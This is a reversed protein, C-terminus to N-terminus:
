GNTNIDTRDGNHDAIDFGMAKAKNEAARELLFVLRAGNHSGISVLVITLPMNYHALQCLLFTIFGALSCTLMEGFWETLNFPRVVGKRLKRVFNATGSWVSVVIVVGWTAWGYALESLGDPPKDM